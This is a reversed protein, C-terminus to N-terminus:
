KAEVLRSKNSVRRGRKRAKTNKRSLQLLSPGKGKQPLLLMEKAEITPAHSLLSSPAKIKSLTVLREMKKMAKM